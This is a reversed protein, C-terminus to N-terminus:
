LSLAVSVSLPLLLDSCRWRIGHGWDRNWRRNILIMLWILSSMSCLVALELKCFGAAVPEAMQEFDAKLEDRCYTKPINLWNSVIIVRSQYFRRTTKICLLNCLHIIFHKNHYLLASSLFGGSAPLLWSCVSILFNELFAFKRQLFEKLSGVQVLIEGM